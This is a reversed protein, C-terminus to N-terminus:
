HRLQGPRRWFPQFPLKQHLPYPPVPKRRQAYEQGDGGLFLCDAGLSRPGGPQPGTGFARPCYEELIRYVSAQSQSFVFGPYEVMIQMMTRFTDVTVGVTEQFGRMWNMDIHAHGVCLYQYIKAEEALPLLVKEAEEAAQNTIVGDRALAIELAAKGAEKEGGIIWAFRLQSLIRRQWPAPNEGVSQELKEFCTFDNAIQIM